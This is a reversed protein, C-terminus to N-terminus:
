WRTLFNLFVFIDGSSSKSSLLGSFIGLSEIELSSLGEFYSIPSLGLLLFIIYFLEKTNSIYSTSPSVKAEWPPFVSILRSMLFSPFLSLLLLFHNIFNIKIYDFIFYTFDNMSVVHLWGTWKFCMLVVIMRNPSNNYALAVNAIRVLLLLIM